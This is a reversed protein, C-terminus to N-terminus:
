NERGEVAYNAKHVWVAVGGQRLNLLTGQWVFLLLLMKTDNKENRKVWVLVKERKGINM